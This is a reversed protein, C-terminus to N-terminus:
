RRWLSQIGDLIFAVGIGIFMLRGIWPDHPKMGRDRGARGPYFQAGPLCSLVVLCCGIAVQFWKMHPTYSGSRNQEVMRDLADYM